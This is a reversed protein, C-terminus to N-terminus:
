IPNVEIIENYLGEINAHEINLVLKNSQEILYKKIVDISDAKLDLNLSSLCEDLLVIPSSHICALAITFSMSIRDREGGSLANIDYSNGNVYVEINIYPKSKQKTKIEKYLKLEVIIGNDFLEELINNVSNNISDVLNQLANNSTEVIISKLINLNSQKNTINVIEDRIKELENRDNVLSLMQISKNHM